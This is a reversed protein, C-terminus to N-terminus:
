VSPQYSVTKSAFHLDKRVRRNEGPLRHLHSSSKFTNWMTFNYSFLFISLCWNEIQKIKMYVLVSNSESPSKSVHPFIFWSATDLLDVQGHDRANTLWQEAPEKSILVWTHAEVGGRSESSVWHVMCPTEWTFCLREEKIAAAALDSWNHGVRHGWLHCGVPVAMGPIRWAFVGSHTAMEKESAHFHLQETM